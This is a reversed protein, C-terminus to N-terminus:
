AALFSKAKEPDDVYLHVEDETIEEAFCFNGDQGEYCCAYIKGEHLYVMWWSFKTERSPETQGILKGNDSAAYGVSDEVSKSM